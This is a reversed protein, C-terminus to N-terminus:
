WVLRGDFCGIAGRGVAEGGGAKGFTDQEIGGGSDECACWNKAAEGLDFGAGGVGGAFGGGGFHLQEHFGEGKWIRVGASIAVAEGPSM